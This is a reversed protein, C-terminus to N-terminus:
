FLQGIICRQRSGAFYFFMELLVAQKGNEDFPMDNREMHPLSSGTRESLRVSVVEWSSPSQRLLALLLLCHLTFLLIEKRTKRKKQRNEM